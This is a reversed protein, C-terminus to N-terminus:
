FKPRYEVSSGGTIPHNDGLEYINDNILIKFEGKSLPESCEWTWLDASHNTLMIGKNWSLNAGSGRIYLANGFGCNYKITIKTKTCQKQKECKDITTRLPYEYMGCTSPAAKEESREQKKTIAM